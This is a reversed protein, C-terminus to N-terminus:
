ARAGGSRRAAVRKAAGVRASASREEPSLLRRTKRRAMPEITEGTFAAKCRRGLDKVLWAGSIHAQDYGEAKLAKRLETVNACRGSGALQYARELVHTDNM